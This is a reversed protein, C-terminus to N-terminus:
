AVSCMTSLPENDNTALREELFKFVSDVALGPVSDHDNTEVRESNYMSMFGFMSKQCYCRSRRRLWKRSLSSRSDGSEGDMLALAKVRHEFAPGLDEYLDLVAVTGASFGIIMVNEAQSPKVVEHWVRWVHEARTEGTRPEQSIHNPDCLVLGWSEHLLAREIYPIQTALHYQNRKGNTFLKRAWQGPPVEGLGQVITLLNPKSTADKSTYITPCFFDFEQQEEEDEDPRQENEIRPIQRPVLDYTDRLEKFVLEKIQDHLYEYHQGQTPYDFLKGNKDVFDKNKDFHWGQEEFWAKSEEIDVQDM